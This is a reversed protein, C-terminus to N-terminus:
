QAPADLVARPLGRAGRGTSWAIPDLVGDVVLARVRHPFLNAYTVGLYSGYSVGAYNLKDDGVLDRLVDMDRAVNATSMHDRIPTAASRCARDLARDAAIWSSSRARSHDPVRGAPVGAVPGPQRLVAAALQPHDRAPRLRRPRLAGAGADTYLFPGAGLVFDVGSGGPGARTSSCRASGTRRSRDRAAAHARALDDSRAAQLLRAAGAGGRVPLAPRRRCPLADLATSRCGVRAPEAAGPLALLAVATLTSALRRRHKAM